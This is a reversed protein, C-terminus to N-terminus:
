GFWIQSISDREDLEINVRNEIYDDTLVDGTRCIRCRWGRLERIFVPNRSANTAYRCINIGATMSVNVGLAGAYPFPVETGTMFSPIVEIDAHGVNNGTSQIDVSEYERLTVTREFKVSKWDTNGIGSESIVLDLLLIKPNFGQPSAEKLRPVQNNSLKVEGFVTLKRGGGALDSIETAYWNRTNPTHNTM